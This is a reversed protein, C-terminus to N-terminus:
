PIVLANVQNRRLTNESNLQGQDGPSGSQFFLIGTATVLCSGVPFPSPPPDVPTAFPCGPDAARSNLYFNNRVENDAITATAGRSLQIGNQGIIETPGAGVVQNWSIVANSGANDVVSGGKQYGVIENDTVTASGTTSEFARGILIGIGNQCGSLPNDRIDKIRNGDLTASGGGDIRVGYRISDCGGGGPGSITFDLISIGTAGNVRVIAKPDAMSAPAQIIAALPTVSQLTLNNKTVTVQETYTGPCVLITDGVAAATVAAGITSYTGIAADCDTATAFGDDDVVLTAAIAPRATLALVGVVAGVLWTQWRMKFHEM